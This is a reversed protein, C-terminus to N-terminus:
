FRRQGARFSSPMYPTTTLVLDAHSKKPKSLKRAMARGYATLHGSTIAGRPEALKLVLGHTEALNLVGEVKKTSLGLVHAISKIRRFRTLALLVLRFESIWEGENPRPKGLLLELVRSNAETEASGLSEKDFSARVESGVSRDDFIPIWTKSKCNFIAPLNNPASHEFVVYSLKDGFGLKRRTSLNHLDAYHSCIRRIETQYQKPTGPAWEGGARILRQYHFEVRDKRRKRNPHSSGPLASL